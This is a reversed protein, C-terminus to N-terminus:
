ATEEAKEEEIQEEIYERRNEVLDFEDDLRRFLESQEDLTETGRVVAECAESLNEMYDDDGDEYIGAFDMGGEEYWADISCNDMDDCFKEYAGVPPSWASDFWGTIESTGDGHDQFNAGTALPAASLSLPLGDPDTARATFTISKLIKYIVM